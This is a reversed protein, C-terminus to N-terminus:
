GYTLKMQCAKLCPELICTFHKQVPDKQQYASSLVESTIEGEPPMVNTTQGGWRPGEDGVLAYRKAWECRLRDWVAMEACYGDSCVEITEDALARVPCEFLCPRDCFTCPSEMLLPADAPLEADTVVTIFRQAIGFEPTIVAGHLGIHGLGAAVAAFRNALADPQPGRPNAVLTGSDCLDQSVVANYGLRQLVRALSVGMYRLWRNTQYVAYSYPGVAQAPPEAARLINNFPFHYGIVIVSNADPLLEEVERIHRQEDREVAPIVPGHYGATDRLSWKMETEDIEQRYSRALESVVQPNAVGFLDGGWATVHGELLSRLEDAYLDERTAAVPYTRMGPQLPASTLICGFTVRSGFEQTVPGAFDNFESILGSAGAVKDTPLHLGPLASYGLRELYQCLELQAFGSWEAFTAGVLALPKPNDDTTAPDQLTDAYQFGFAILTQADPLEARLDLGRQLCVARDVIAVMDAERDLLRSIVNLTAPRDIAKPETDQLQQRIPREDMFRRRRRYTTSYDPDELRLHPPLCYRLCSGMAGGRRGMTELSDLIVQEDVVDPLEGDLDLGFHEAWACRWKNKHCYSFEKGGINIVNDASAEKNFVDMPCHRVCEGCMDCLPPGDYLPDPVLPADTVLCCFRQRPGFEPTLLLGNYGIEGLGAAAAAHINSLDPTFSGEINKYPRFRWVNTAPIAIVNYGVDELRRALQFSICELKTNVAGQIGYPGMKQPHENGGIEIAADPHHIAIVVVCTAGPLHGKPSMEIPAEAYRESPAIGVLDAGLNIALTRIEDTLLDDYM